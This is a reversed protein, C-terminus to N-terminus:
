FAALLTAAGRVAVSVGLPANVADAVVPVRDVDVGVLPEGNVRVVGLLPLPVAVTVTFPGPPVKCVAFM